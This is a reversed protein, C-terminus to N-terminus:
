KNLEITLNFRGTEERSITPFFVASYKKDRVLDEMRGNLNSLCQSDQCFVGIKVNKGAQKIELDALTFGPVSIYKIDDFIDKRENGNPMIKGIKKLRDDIMILYSENKNLDSIEKEISLIKSKNDSVTKNMKSFFYFVAAAAIFFVIGSFLAAIFLFRRIKVINVRQYAPTGVLNIGKM